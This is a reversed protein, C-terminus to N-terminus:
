NNKGALSTGPIDSGFPDRVLSDWCRLVYRCNAAVSRGGSQECQAAVVTNLLVVEVGAALRGHNSVNLM